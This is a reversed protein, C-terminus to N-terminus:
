IKISLTEEILGYTNLYMAMCDYGMDKFNDHNTQGVNGSKVTRDFKCNTLTQINTDM